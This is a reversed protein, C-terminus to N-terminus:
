RLSATPYLRVVTDYGCGALVAAADDSLAVDMVVCETMEIRMAKNTALNWVYASQAGHTAIRSGRGGKFAFAREGLSGAARISRASSDFTAVYTSREDHAVLAWRGSDPLEIATGGGFVTRGIPQSSSNSARWFESGGGSQSLMMLWPGLRGREALPMRAYVLERANSAPASIMAAQDAAIAETEYSTEGIVGRYRTYRYRPLTRGAVIWTGDERAILQAGYVPPLEVRWGLPQGAVDIMEVALMKESQTLKLIRQSDLFAIDAAAVEVPSKGKAFVGFRPQEDYEETWRVAFVRSDNSMLVAFPHGSVRHEAIPKPAAIWKASRQTLLPDGGILTAFLQTGAFLVMSAIAAHAIALRRRGAVTLAAAIGFFLIVLSPRSRAALFFQLLPQDFTVGVALPISAIIVFVSLTIITARLGRHRQEKPVRMVMLLCMVGFLAEAAGMPAVIEQLFPMPPRNFALLGAALATAGLAALATASATIMTLIAVVMPPFSIGPFLSVLLVVFAILRTRLAVHTVAHAPAAFRTDVADLARQVEAVDAPSISFRVRARGHRGLLEWGSLTQRLVLSQLEGYAFVRSPVSTEEPARDFVQLADDTFTLFFGGKRAAFTRRDITAPATELGSARRIAAIRRALTPHTMQKERAADLRRPMGNHEHIKELGSILAHPDAGLQLARLDAATENQQRMALAIVIAVFFLLPWIASVWFAQSP